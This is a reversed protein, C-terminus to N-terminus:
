LTAELVAVVGCSEVALTLGLVLGGCFSFRFSVSGARLFDELTFVSMRGEFFSLVDDLFYLGVNSMASRSGSSAVAVVRM